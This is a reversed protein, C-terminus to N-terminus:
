DSTSPSAEAPSPGADTGADADAASHGPESHGPESHGPEAKLVFWASRAATQEAQKKSRGAGNGLSRGRVTVEAHFVKAHDPGSDAVRYVPLEDYTQACLEQLRTKYDEDGPGKASERLREGLLELVIANVTSYGADLYIAGILAEM